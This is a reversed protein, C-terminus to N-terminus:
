AVQESDDAGTVQTYREDAALEKLCEELGMQEFFSYAIVQAQHSIVSSGTNMRYHILAAFDLIVREAINPDNKEYLEAVTVTPRINDISM